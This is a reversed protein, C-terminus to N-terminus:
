RFYRYILIASAQINHVVYVLLNEKKEERGHRGGIREKGTIGLSLIKKPRPKSKPHIKGV